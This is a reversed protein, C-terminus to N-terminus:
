TQVSAVQTLQHREPTLGSAILGHPVDMSDLSRHCQELLEQRHVLVLTRNGKAAASATVFSFIVTKGSGTPAVLLPRRRGSRFSDRVADVATQQYPRLSFM